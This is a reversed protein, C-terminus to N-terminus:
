ERWFIGYNHTAITVQVAEEMPSFAEGARAGVTQAPHAVQDPSSHGEEEQGQLRSVQVPSVTTAAELLRRHALPDM